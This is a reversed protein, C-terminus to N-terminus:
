IPSWAPLVVPKTRGCNGATLAMRLMSTGDEANFYLKGNYVTLQRPDADASGPYIDAVRVVTPSNDFYFLEEGKSGDDASFYLKGDYVTLNSPYSGGAGPNIDRYAYSGKLDMGWLETGIGTIGLIGEDGAFYLFGDYVAMYDPNSSGAGTVLDYFVVPNVGDYIWLERGHTGNTASFCLKGDFVTLSIPDSSSAGSNIDEVMSPPNIGDYVWLERGNTGDVATFYLKNNFVTLELPYSDGGTNIDAVMSPSNIGDYSWLEYGHSGDTAMFFLQYNFEVIWGTLDVSHGAGTNIDAVMSYKYSSSSEGVAGSVTSVLIFVLLIGVFIIIRKM